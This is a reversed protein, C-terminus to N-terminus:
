MVAEQGADRLDNLDRGRPETVYFTTIVSILSLLAVYAALPIWSLM